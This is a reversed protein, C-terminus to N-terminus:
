YFDVFSLLTHYLLLSTVLETVLSHRFEQKATAPGPKQEHQGQLRPHGSTEGGCRSRSPPGLDSLHRLGRCPYEERLQSVATGEPPQPVGGRMKGIWSKSKSFLVISFPKLLFQPEYAHLNTSLKLAILNRRYACVRCDSSKAWVVQSSPYVLGSRNQPEHKVPPLLRPRPNRRHLSLSQVSSTKLFSLNRSRSGAAAM